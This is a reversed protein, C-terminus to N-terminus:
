DGKAYETLSAVVMIRNANNVTVKLIEGAQLVLDRSLLESTANGAITFDDYLNFVAAASNTLTLNLTTASANNNNVLISEIVAFDFDTGAPATYLTTANTTTLSIKANTVKQIYQTKSAPDIM